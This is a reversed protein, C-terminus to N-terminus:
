PRIVGYETVLIVRAVSDKRNEWRQNVGVVWVKAGVFTRLVGAFDGELIWQVMNNDEIWGGPRVIGVIPVEGSPLALLEYSIVDITPNEVDDSPLVRGTVSVDMGVLSRLEDGLVSSQVFYLTGDTAELMVLSFPTSGRTSIKGNTIVIGDDIGGSDGAQGQRGGCGTTLLSTAFTVAITCRVLWKRGNNGPIM